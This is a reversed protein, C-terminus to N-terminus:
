DNLLRSRWKAPDQSCHFVSYIVCGLGLSQEEYWRYADAIDAKAEPLIILKATM